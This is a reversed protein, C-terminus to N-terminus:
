VAYREVEARLDDLKVGQLFYEVCVRMVEGFVKDFEIDDLSSYDISKPMLMVEGELTILQEVHGAAIQVATRFQEMSTYREQNQFVLSLLAFYHRHNTPNRAKRIEVWFGDGPKFKKLAARADDDGAVLSVTIARTLFIKAM